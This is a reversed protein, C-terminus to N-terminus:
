LSSNVALHMGAMVAVLIFNISHGLPNIRTATSLDVSFYYLTSMTPTIWQFKRDTFKPWWDSAFKRGSNDVQKQNTWLCKMAHVHTSGHTVSEKCKKWSHFVSSHSPEATHCSLILSDYNQNCDQESLSPNTLPLLSKMLIHTQFM